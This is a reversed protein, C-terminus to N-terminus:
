QKDAKRALVDWQAKDREKQNNVVTEIQKELDTELEKLDAKYDAKQLANMETRLQVINSNVWLAVTGVSIIISIITVIMQWWNVKTKVAEESM